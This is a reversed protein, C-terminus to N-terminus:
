PRLERDLPSRFRPAVAVGALHPQLREIEAEVAAAGDAGVDVLLRHVITGDAHQTWGGVIRGNWWVTPGANGNSDFIAENHPGLYWDRTKWGMPTPDLGPLLAAWRPPEPVPDVDDALVLGVADGDLEVELTDLAAVAHRARTRTWGTWWVLDDFTAPGFRALWRQALDARAADPELVDVAHGLWQPTPVWRYQSSLWTGRPRGRVIHGDAALQLLVRTSMRVEAVWRGSGVTITRQLEPVLESLEGTHAGGRAVLAKLTAAELARLWGDADQIGNASIARVLQRRLAAAVDNSSSAQVTAVLDTPVVFMTRRMGLMRVLTRDDYLARESAEICPTEMRAVASLHVTAPDSAHLALVSRTIEVPDDIRTGPVLRHLWALRARRQDDGIHLVTV